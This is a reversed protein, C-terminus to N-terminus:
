ACIGKGLDDLLKNWDFKGYFKDVEPIEGALETMFRESLCGM